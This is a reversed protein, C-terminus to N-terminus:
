HTVVVKTSLKMTGDFSMFYVGSPFSVTSVRIVGETGSLTQSFVVNGLLDYVRLTGTQYEPLQITLEYANQSVGLQKADNSQAQREASEQQVPLLPWEDGCNQNFDVNIQDCGKLLSAAQIVASGGL